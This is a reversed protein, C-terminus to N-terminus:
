NGDTAPATGDGKIHTNECNGHENNGYKERWNEGLVYDLLMNDIILGQKEKDEMALLEKFTIKECSM